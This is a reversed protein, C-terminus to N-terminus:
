QFKLLADSFQNVNFIPSKLPSHPPIIAQKPFTNLM